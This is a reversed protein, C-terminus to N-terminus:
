RQRGGALGPFKQRLRDGAELQEPTARQLFDNVSGFEPLEAILDPVALNADLGLETATRINDEQRNRQIKAM